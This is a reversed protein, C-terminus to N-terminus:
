IHLWFKEYTQMDILMIATGERPRIDLNMSNTKGIIEFGAKPKNKDFSWCEDSSYGMKGIYNQWTFEYAPIVEAEVNVKATAETLEPKSTKKKM